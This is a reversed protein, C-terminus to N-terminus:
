INSPRTSSSYDQQLKRYRKALDVNTRGPQFPYAWLISNWSHGFRKVGESLFVLEDASYDKRERQKSPSNQKADNLAPRPLSCVNRNKMSTSGEADCPTKLPTLSILSIAKLHNSRNLKDKKEKREKSTTQRSVNEYACLDSCSHTNAHCYTYMSREQQLHRKLREEAQQLVLHFECLNKCSHLVAAVSRSNVEDVGSVCGACRLKNPKYVVPTILIREIESDLLESCLSLEDESLSRRLRRKMPAPHKFIDPSNIKRDQAANDSDKNDRNDTEETRNLQRRMKVVKNRETQELEKQKRESNNRMQLKNETVVEKVAEKQQLEKVKLQSFHVSKDFDRVIQRRVHMSDHSQAPIPQAPPQTPTTSYHLTNEKDSEEKYMPSHSRAKQVESDDMLEVSCEVPWTSRWLPPHTSQDPCNEFDTVLQDTGTLQQRELHQIRQLIEQASQRHSQLDCEVKQSSISETIKICTQLVFTAAKRVEDDNAETLLSIMLPLGGGLLLQSQHEVCADTCHGLTLVVALRDQVSLNPSSLLLLLDPVLRLESLVPAIAENDAICASVTKTIMAALKCAAANDNCQVVVSALTDSLTVLGGVSTFVEQACTNNAVTMGIFSCIPQALEARSVSLQLLWTKLLPFVCMCARQNEENQPNNVCGCLASSVSTWLQLLEKPRGDEPYCNRFLDLLIDICGSAKALSQGQRNNSVLVSLMYVAVRRQIPFKEQKICEALSHFFEEKCLTQRCSENFEALASLTFLATEKVVPYSSARSLNYIFTVGGIEKLFEVNDDNQQCISMITLLAQKQSDPCKMQYKLCELLLHLDTRIANLM